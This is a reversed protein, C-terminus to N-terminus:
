LTYALSYSAYVLNDDNKIFLIFIEVLVFVENLAPSRLVYLVKNFLQYWRFLFKSAYIVYNFAFYSTLSADVYKIYFFLSNCVCILAALDSNNDNASSLTNVGTSFFCIRV